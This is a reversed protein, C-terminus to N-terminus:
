PGYQMSYGCPTIRIMYCPEFSASLHLKNMTDDHFTGNREASWPKTSYLLAWMYNGVFSFVVYICSFYM